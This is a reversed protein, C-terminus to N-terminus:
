TKPAINYFWTFLSNRKLTMNKEQRRGKSFEDRERERELVRKRMLDNFGLTTM